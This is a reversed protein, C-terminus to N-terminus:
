RTQWGVSLGGAGAGSDPPYYIQILRIEDDAQTKEGMTM